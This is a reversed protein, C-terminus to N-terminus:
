IPTNNMGGVGGGVQPHVWMGVWPTHLRTLQM